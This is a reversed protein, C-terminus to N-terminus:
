RDVKLKTITENTVPHVVGNCQEEIDPPPTFALKFNQLVRPVFQPLDALFANGLVSYVTNKSISAAGRSLKVQIPQQNRIRQKYTDQCAVSEGWQLRWDVM